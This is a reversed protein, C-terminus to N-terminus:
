STDEYRQASKAVWIGAHKTFRMTAAFALQERMRHSGTAYRDLDETWSVFANDSGDYEPLDSPRFELKFKPEYYAERQGLGDPVENAGVPPAGGDPPGPRPPGNSPWGREPYGGGPGVPPCGPHVSRGIPPGGEDGPNDDDPPGGGPPNWRNGEPRGPDPRIHQASSPDMARSPLVSRHEWHRIGQPNPTKPANVATQQRLPDVLNWTDSDGPEAVTAGQAKSNTTYAVSENEDVSQLQAIIKLGTRLRRLGLAALQLVKDESPVGAEMHVALVGGPDFKYPQLLTLSFETDPKFVTPQGTHSVRVVTDTFSSSEVNLTYALHYLSTNILRIDAAASPGQERHLSEVVSLLLTRRRLVEQDMSAEVSPLKNTTSRAREDM